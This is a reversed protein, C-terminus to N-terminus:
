IRGCIALPVKLRESYESGGFTSGCGAARRVTVGSDYGGFVSARQISGIFRGGGRAAFGEVVRAYVAIVLTEQAHVFLGPHLIFGIEDAVADESSRKRDNDSVLVGVIEIDPQRSKVGLEPSDPHVVVLADFGHVHGEAILFRQGIEVTQREFRLPQFM